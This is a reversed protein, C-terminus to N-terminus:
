QNFLRSFNDHLIARRDRDRLASGQIRALASGQHRMPLDSGFLIRNVGVAEVAFELIGADPLMGSTDIWINPHPALDLVGDEHQGSLHPAIIKLRPFKGALEAVDATCSEGPMNGGFKNWCHQLIPVDLEVALEAIPEVLPDNAKCSIWLKIGLMPGQQVRARIEALAHDTHVPNVFCLACLRDPAQQVLSQVFENSATIREPPPNWADTHHPAGISSWHGGDPAPFQPDIENGLAFLCQRTIGFAEARAIMTAVDCGPPHVHCDTVMPLPKM